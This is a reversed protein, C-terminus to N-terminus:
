RVISTGVISPHGRVFAGWSMRKGGAPQVERLWLRQRDGVGLGRADIVGRAPANPDVEPAAAWVVLRGAPTEIFSGPWPQHARIQRDLEGASRSPDLRGDERRLPRTITVGEIPQPRAKIEGRIWPGLHDNLVGDAAMMLREELIPTTESGELQVTAQAVIPGTDLGEDMQMLTVGTQADGALIAAQIPTAGRHRPLLSPHLNLAGYRVRLLAAPVIQGYDALVLLDPELALVEAVADSARLREPTLIVPVALEDAVEHIITPGLRGGRGAPRPPATVVGVLEVDDHSDLRWLSERGFGGSGVFVTRARGATM